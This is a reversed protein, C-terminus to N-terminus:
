KITRSPCMGAWFRLLNAGGGGGGGGKSADRSNHNLYEVFVHRYDEKGAINDALKFAHIGHIELMFAMYKWFLDNMCLALDASEM